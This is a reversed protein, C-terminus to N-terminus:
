IVFASLQYFCLFEDISSTISVKLPQIDTHTITSPDVIPRRRSQDEEPIIIGAWQPPLGVYKGHERDFGVQVRHEFNSPTSIEIKKKGKKFMKVIQDTIFLVPLAIDNELNQM